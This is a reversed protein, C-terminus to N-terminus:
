IGHKASEIGRHRRCLAACLGPMIQAWCRGRRSHSQAQTSAQQIISTNTSLSKPAPAVNARTSRSSTSASKRSICCGCTTTPPEACYHILISYSSLFSKTPLVNPTTLMSFHQDEAQMSPFYIASQPPLQYQCLHILRKDTGFFM